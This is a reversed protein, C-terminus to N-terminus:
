LFDGKGWGSSSKFARKPQDCSVPFWPINNNQGVKDILKNNFITQTTMVYVQVGENKLEDILDIFGEDKSILVVATGEPNQGADSKAHQIIDGFVENGGVFVRWGLKDLEKAANDQTPDTFVKLLPTMGGFRKQLETVITSHAHQVWAGPIGITQFDWLVILSYQFPIIDDRLGFFAPTICHGKAVSYFAALHNADPATAGIEWRSLTNAPIGLIDAMKSQSMGMQKRVDVLSEKKFEYKGQKIASM